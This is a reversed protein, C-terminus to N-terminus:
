AFPEPSIKVREQWLYQAEKFFFGFLVFLALRLFFFFLLGFVCLIKYHLFNVKECGKKM